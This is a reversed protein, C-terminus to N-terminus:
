EDNDKDELLQNDLNIGMHEAGIRQATLMIHSEIQIKAKEVLGEMAEEFMEVSFETDSAFRGLSQQMLSLVEALEKKSAKGKIHLERLKNLADEGKEITKDLKDKFEKSAKQKETKQGKIEPLQVLDGDRLTKLTVPTGAGSGVSSVFHAWQAETMEVELIRGKQTIWSKNLHREEEAYSFELHVRNNHRLDSGFMKLEGGQHHTLRVNGYAPHTIKYSDEYHHNDDKYEIKPEEEHRAM